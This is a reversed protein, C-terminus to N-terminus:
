FIRQVGGQMSEIRNHTKLHSTLSAPLADSPSLESTSTTRQTFNSSSSTATPPQSSPKATDIPARTSVLGYDTNDVSM